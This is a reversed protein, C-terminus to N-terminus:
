IPQIILRECRLCRHIESAKGIVHSRAIPLARKVSNATLGFGGAVTPELRANENWHCPGVVPGRQLKFDLERAEILKLIKTLAAHARAFLGVIPHVGKAFNQECRRHHFDQPHVLRLRCLALRLGTYVRGSGRELDLPWSFLLLSPPQDPRRCRNKAAPPRCSPSTAARRWHRKRVARAAPAAAAGADGGKSTRGRLAVAISQDLQRPQRCM